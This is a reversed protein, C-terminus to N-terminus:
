TQPGARRTEVTTAGFLSSTENCIRKCAMEFYHDDVEFGLSNRGCKAAAVITTGTGLFPDLVTDGVFSFM